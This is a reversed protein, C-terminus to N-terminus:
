RMSKQHTRDLWRCRGCICIYSEEIGTIATPVEINWLGAVFTRADFYGSHFFFVFVHSDYKANHEFRGNLPHKTKIRFLRIQKNHRDM